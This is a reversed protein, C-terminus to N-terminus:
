GTKVKFEDDVAFVSGWFTWDDTRRTVDTDNSTVTAPLEDIKVISKIVDSGPAECQSTVNVNSCMKDTCLGSWDSQFTRIRGYVATTMTEEDYVTCVTVLTYRLSVKASNDVGPAVECDSLRDSGASKTISRPPCQKCQPQNVKDQYFGVPCPNCTYVRRTLKYYQGAPCDNVVLTRSDTMTYLAATKWVASCNCVVGNDASTLPNINISSRVETGVVDDPEVDPYGDCQFIVSTVLPKGDRVTCTMTLGLGVQVVDDAYYGGITPPSPPPYNFQIDIATVATGNGKYNVLCGVTEDSAPVQPQWRCTSWGWTRVLMQETCPVSWCFYDVNQPNSASCTLNLVRSGDTDFMQPGYIYVSRGTGNSPSTARRRRRFPFIRTLSGGTHGSSRGPTPTTTTPSAPNILTVAGSSSDPRATSTIRAPSARGMAAPLRTSTSSSTSSPTNRKPSSTSTTWGTTSPPHGRTPSSTPITSTIPNSSRTSSAPSTPGSLSRPSTFSTLSTLSESNTPSATNLLSKFMDDPICLKITTGDKVNARDPTVTCTTNDSFTIDDLAVDLPSEDGGDGLVGRIAITALSWSGNEQGALSWRERGFQSRSDVLFVDLHGNTNDGMYYWFQLCGPASLPATESSILLATDNIHASGHTTDLHLYHGNGLTHDTDPATGTAPASAQRLIWDLQDNGNDANRWGCLTDNEFDCGPSAPKQCLFPFPIECNYDNWQGSALITACDEGRLNNPETERWHVYGQAPTGDVWVWNGEQQLDSLGIWSDSRQNLGELFAQEGASTVVALDAGVTQRCAQRAEAWSKMDSSYFYCNNRYQEWGADCQSSVTSLSVAVIFVFVVYGYTDM